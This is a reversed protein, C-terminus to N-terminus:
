LAISPCMSRNPFMEVWQGMEKEGVEQIIDGGGGTAIHLEMLEVMLVQTAIVADRRPRVIALLAKDM